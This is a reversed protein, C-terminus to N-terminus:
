LGSFVPTFHIAQPMQQKRQHFSGVVALALSHKIDLKCFGEFQLLRGKCFEM